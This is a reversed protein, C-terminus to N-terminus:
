TEINRNVSYGIIANCEIIHTVSEEIQFINAILVGNVINRDPNFM